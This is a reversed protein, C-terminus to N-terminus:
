AIRKSRACVMAARRSPLQHGGASRQDAHHYRGVVPRGIQATRDRADYAAFVAINFDHHGVIEPAVDVALDGRTEAVPADNIISIFSVKAHGGVMNVGKAIQDRALEDRDEIVVIFPFRPKEALQHWVNEVVPFHYDRKGVVVYYIPVAADVQGRGFAVGPSPTAINKRGSKM